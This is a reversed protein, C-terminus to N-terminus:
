YAGLIVPLPDAFARALFQGGRVRLAIGGFDQIPGVERREHRRQWVLTRRRQEADLAVRLRAVARQDRLPQGLPIPHWDLM